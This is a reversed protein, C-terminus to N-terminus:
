EINQIQERIKEIASKMEIVMKSIDIDPSKSGITNVERNVEQVLFDLKRGIPEKRELFCELQSFHCDLRVIEEAITTKDAFVAVEHALKEEDVMIEDGLLEAIRERMKEKHRRSIEPAWQCVAGLQERLVVIREQIDKKMQRGEERRMSMVSELSKLLAEAMIAWIAAEDTEEYVSDFIDPYQSLIKLNPKEELEYRKCISEFAKFYQDLVSFNPCIKYDQKSIEEFNIYIEVRGRHIKEKIKAKIKEEFVILKKPMKISIDCYRHNVTKTEITIRYADSESSGRGYGTMSFM